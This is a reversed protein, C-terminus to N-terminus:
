PNRLCQLVVVDVHLRNWEVTVVLTCDLDGVDWYLVCLRLMNLYFMMKKSIVHHLAVDVDLMCVSFILQSM